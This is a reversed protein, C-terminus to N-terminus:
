DRTFIEPMQAERLAYESRYKEAKREWHVTANMIQIGRISYSAIFKGNKHMAMMPLPFSMVVEGTDPDSVLFEEDTVTRCYRRGALTSPVSIQQGQYFVKRQDKVIEILVQNAALGTAPEPFLGADIIEGSKSVAVSATGLAVQKLRRKSLYEAAKAELVSLHLPESAPTHELTQWAIEPTSQNLSQHPRRRNYHERYRTILRHLDALDKPKNADLFRRLTQHSRENKGQTTPRGPLGSIPMTGKSALFIEVAGITGSRLQNFAKSNDSLLEQPAGHSKIARALLDHADHSNEHQRYAWSGVDYRTADDILQYVTGVKRDGTRYEFADLQWLAMATSRAFPLYSSKPRKRPNRDVHGVGALLRAITAISPAQGGPFGDQITAEHHITKPGYDWGDKKLQKRIRVLENIVEPGYRRAPHHPARSRPHLASASETSARSRIRYFISRSIKQTKCFESITLADPQTPDYNIIM